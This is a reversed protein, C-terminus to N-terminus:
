SQAQALNKLTTRTADIMVNPVHSKGALRTVIQITNM